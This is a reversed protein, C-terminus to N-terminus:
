IMQEVLLEIEAKLTAVIEDQKLTRVIEGKKFLIAQDKGGAIGIDAQKAEGPGNVPCGMIAVHINHPVSELYKEIEDVIPFMDYQLRGCTPCAILTAINSALGFNKLLERAVKIEEVPDTSLSIRLTSGINQQLLISLGAVSKITGAFKTGAETIGLHLPYNFTKAALEYAEIALELNSAKLSICIDYFDLSELLQVHYVASAVMAKACPYGYEDLLHKELSGANVGIRIPVNHKKCAEVVELVAQNDGINGPNIRIKDVGAEIAALAIKYNFHIDAVIPINCQAKIEKICQADEITLCAVRVIQAGSNQLATIQKVTADIDHTKTNTMSQIMVENNGGVQVNGVMIPRTDKRHKM